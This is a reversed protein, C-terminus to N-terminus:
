IKNLNNNLYDQKKRYIKVLEELKQDNLEYGSLHKDQKIVTIYGDRSLNVIHSYITATSHNLMKALEAISVSVIQDIEINVFLKLLNRQKRTYTHYNEIAEILEKKDNM